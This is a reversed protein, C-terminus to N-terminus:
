ISKPCCTAERAKTFLLVQKDILEKIKEVRAKDEIKNKDYLKLEEQSVFREEKNSFVTM